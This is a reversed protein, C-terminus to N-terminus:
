KCRPTQTAVKVGAVLIEQASRRDLSRHDRSAWRVSCRRTFDVMHASADLGLIELEAHVRESMSMEPLGSPRRGIVSDTLDLATQVGDVVTGTRASRSQRRASAVSDLM